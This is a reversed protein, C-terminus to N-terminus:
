KDRVNVAWPSPDNAHMRLIQYAEKLVQPHLLRSFTSPGSTDKPYPLWLGPGEMRYQVVM